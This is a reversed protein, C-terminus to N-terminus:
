KIGFRRYNSKSVYQSYIDPKEDKLDKTNLRESLINTWSVIRGNVTALENEGLMNKLKNTAEDKKLVAEEEAAKAEEYQQILTLAEDQLSIVQKSTGIPYLRNLLDSCVKSGDLKPPKKKEVCNWFIKELRILLKIIEEDREIYYYKYHNGAILVAVYAGIFGTVAMYHQVQLQYHEPIDLEWEHANYISATKAEFILGCKKIPDIIVGDLNALMFPYEPHQLISKEIGVEIGTRKTFEERVIPELINGWYAAEGSEKPEIQGTKEMWLEIVSKYKNIGCIVSADSGGIGKNRWALWETRDMLETSVLTNSM